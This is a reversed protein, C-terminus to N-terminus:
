SMAARTQAESEWRRTEEEVRETVRETSWSRSFLDKAVGHRRWQDPRASAGSQFTGVHQRANRRRRKARIIDCRGDPRAATTGRGTGEAWHMQLPPKQCPMACCSGGSKGGQAGCSARPVGSAFTVRTVMGVANRYPRQQTRARTRSSSRGHRPPTIM